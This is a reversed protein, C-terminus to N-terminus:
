PATIFLRGMAAFARSPPFPDCIYSKDVRRFETLRNAIDAESLGGDLASNELWHWFHSLAIGDRLHAERFGGIEATNKIAKQALVPEPRLVPELGADILMEHLAVPLSAPDYIKAGKNRSLYGALGAWSLSAYGTQKKDSNSGILTLSGKIDLLGFCLHFPTFLLDRGRM